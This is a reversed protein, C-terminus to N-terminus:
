MKMEVMEDLELGNAVRLTQSDPDYEYVNDSLRDEPKVADENVQKVMNALMEPDGAVSKPVILVEDVSSPIVYIEGLKETIKDMFKPTTAMVAGKTKQQNTLLFFPVDYDNIDLDDINFEPNEDGRLAGFMAEELNMFVPEQSSINEMAARNLDEVNVKWMEMLDNDIVAEAIGNKDAHVRVAYIMALDAIQTNPKNSIYDAQTSPNILRPFIKEKVNDFSLFMDKSVGGPIPAEMRIKALEVLVNEPTDGDEYHKFAETLNLAPTISFSGENAKNITLSDYTYGNSRTVPHEKMTMDEYEEPLYEGIHEKIYNKFEDYNMRNM